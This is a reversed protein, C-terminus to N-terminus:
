NPRTSSFEPVAAEFHSASVFLEALHSENQKSAELEDFMSQNIKTLTLLKRNSERLRNAISQLLSSLFGCAVEPRQEILQVFATQELVAVTMSCNATVTASRPVNAVVGMEGILDGARVVNLVMGDRVGADMSEVVAEGELVLAMFDTNTAGAKFLVTGAAVQCLRMRQALIVAEQTKISALANSSVLMRALETITWLRAPAAQDTMHHMDVNYSNLQRNAAGVALRIGNAGM